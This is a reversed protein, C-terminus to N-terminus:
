DTPRAIAHDRAIDGSTSEARGGELEADSREPTSQIEPRTDETEEDQALAPLTLSSGATLVATALFVRRRRSMTDLAGTKM